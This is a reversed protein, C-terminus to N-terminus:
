VEDQGANGRAARPGLVFEIPQQPIPRGSRPASLREVGPAELNTGEGWSDRPERARDQGFGQTPGLGGSPVGGGPRRPFSPAARARDSLAARAGDRLGRLWERLVSWNNDKVNDYVLLATTHVWHPFVRVVFRRFTAHRRMFIFFNRTDWYIAFPSGLPATAGSQHAVRVGPVHRLVWGSKKLRAFLDRDEWFCFYFEDFLGVEDLADRRFMPASGTLEHDGYADPGGEMRVKGYNVYDVMRPDVGAVTPNAEIAAVLVDLLHSDVVKTDNNLVLIYEGRSERIGGNCGAAYGVNVENRIVRVWPFEQRVSEATGDASGNDVLLTEFNPYTLHEVSELCRRTYDLRNFAPIVISVRPV